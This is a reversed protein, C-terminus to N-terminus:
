GLIAEPSYRNIANENTEVAYDAYYAKFADNFADDKMAHLATSKYNELYDIDGSKQTIDYRIVVYYYTEGKFVTAKGNEQEFIYAVLEKSPTTQTKSVIRDNDSEKADEATTTATTSVSDNYEKLVASFATGANLKEAYGNALAEKEALKDADSIADGNSDTLKVAIYRVLAYNEAIYNNIDATAVPEKGTEGYYAEFIASEKEQNAVMIKYSSKGIGCSEYYAGFTDYGYYYQAYTNTDNWASNATDNITKTQEATLTLGLEDFMKEVAVYHKCNEITAQKVYDSFSVGNVECDFYSFGDATTDLDPNAESVASVADSSASFLNYIYVGAPISTGDIVAAYSTDACGTFATLGTVLMAASLVAAILKKRLSM